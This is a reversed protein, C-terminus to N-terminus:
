TVGAEDMEPEDAAYLYIWLGMALAVLSFAGCVLGWFWYPLWLATAMNAVDSPMPGRSTMAQDTFLYDGRTFVSASLNVALFVLAFRAVFANGWRVLALLVAVLSGVFVVGFLNRVVLALAAAYTLAVIGLGWRAFREQRAMAFLVMATMAPGVLGGASIAARQWPTSSRTTAVGSGDSFMEFRLFEGGVLEAAVGHGLEHALTSLWLLPRALLELYPVHPVVLTLAASAALVLFSKPRGM